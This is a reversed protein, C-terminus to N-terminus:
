GLKLIQWNLVNSKLSNKCSKFASNLFFYIVFNQAGLIAFFMITKSSKSEGFNTERLIQFVTFDEFIRM